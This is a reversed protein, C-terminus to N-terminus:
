WIVVAQLPFVYSVALVKKEKASHYMGDPKFEAYQYASGSFSSSPDKKM